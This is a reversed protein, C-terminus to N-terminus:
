LTKGSLKIEEFVAVGDANTQVVMEEEKDNTIRVHIGETGPNLQGNGDQFKVPIQLGFGKMMFVIDECTKKKNILVEKPEFIANKPGAMKLHFEPLNQIVAFCNGDPTCPFTEMLKGTQYSVVQLSMESFSITSDDPKEISVSCTQQAYIDAAFLIM